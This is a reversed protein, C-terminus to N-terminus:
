PHQSSLSTDRLWHYGSLGDQGSFLSENSFETTAHGFPTPCTKRPHIVRIRLLCASRMVVFCARSREPM